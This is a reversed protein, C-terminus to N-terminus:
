HCIGDREEMEGLSEVNSNQAMGQSWLFGSHVELFWTRKLSGRKFNNGLSYTMEM